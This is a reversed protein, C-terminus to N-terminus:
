IPHYIELIATILDNIVGATPVIACVPEFNTIECFTKHISMNAIIIFFTAVPLLFGTDVNKM